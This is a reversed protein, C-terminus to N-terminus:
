ERWGTGPAVGGTNGGAFRGDSRGSPPPEPTVANGFPAEPGACGATM